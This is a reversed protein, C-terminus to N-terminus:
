CPVNYLPYKRFLTCDATWHLLQLSYVIQLNYEMHDIFGLVPAVILRDLPQIKGLYPGQKKFELPQNSIICPGNMQLGLAIINPRSHLAM